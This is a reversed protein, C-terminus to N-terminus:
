SQFSAAIPLAEEIEHAYEVHSMGTDPDDIVITAENLTNAIREYKMKNYDHSVHLEGVTIKSDLYVIFERQDEYDKLVDIIAYSGLPEIENQLPKLLDQLSSNSCLISSKPINAGIICYDKSMPKSVADRGIEYGFYKAIEYDDTWSQTKRKGSSVKIKKCQRLLDVDKKDIWTWRYLYGSSYSPLYDKIKKLFEILEIPEQSKGMYKGYFWDQIYKQNENILKILDERTM